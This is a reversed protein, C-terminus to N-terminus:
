RYELCRAIVLVSFMADHSNNRSSPDSVNQMSYRCLRLKTCNVDPQILKGESRDLPCAESCLFSLRSVLVRVKRLNAGFSICVSARGSLWVAWFDSDLFSPKTLNSALM